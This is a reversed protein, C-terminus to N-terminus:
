IGAKRFYEADRKRLEDLTLRDGAKNVFRDVPMGERFLKARTPGLVKDQFTSDKGKLWENYTINAPVQGDYTARTGEPFEKLDIGLEKWSKLVPVSTSRCNHTIIGDAVFWGCDTELNYVHGDFESVDISVINDVFVPGSNGNLINRAIKADIDSGDIVTKVRDSCNNVPAGVEIAVSDDRQICFATAHLFNTSHKSSGAIWNPLNECVVANPEPSPNLLYLNSSVLNDSLDNNGHRVGSHKRSCYSACEIHRDLVNDVDHAGISDSRIAPSEVDGDNLYGVEMAGSEVNGFDSSHEIYGVSNNGPCHIAVADGSPTADSIVPFEVSSNFPEIYGFGLGHEIATDANASYSFEKVEGRWCDTKREFIGPKRDPVTAFLLEGSHRPATRFLSRCDGSCCIDSCSASDNRNICLDFGGCSTLYPKISSNGGSFYREGIHECGPSDVDILLSSNTGVIAVQSGIGDGHFDPASIPVEITSVGGSIFFAEAIDEICSPVNYNESDSSSVRQILGDSIVNDGLNFSQAAIWGRDSLIPHNPTCSIERGSSTKIVILQGKYPRKYARTINGRVSVISTGPLCNHHRPPQPGEGVPFVKGDLSACLITVRSDMTATFKWGKVLDDNAEYFKQRTHNATHSVATRVITEANRRTIELIGDQYQRAKTGKIRQVMEQITQGEVYGIRIADRIKAAKEAELGAMWESLLRGQFPRAMASSVVQSVPVMAVEFAVPLTNQFLQAQYGQEYAVLDALETQLEHRIKQYAAANIQRVSALLSDLREVTFQSVPLQQLAATLQIFLDNDTRNLLAIVKYVVQNQYRIIDHGHDITATQLKENATAM